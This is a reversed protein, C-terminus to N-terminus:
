VPKIGKSNCLDPSAGYLVLVNYIAENGVEVAKHLPTQYDCGPINPFAGAELLMEVGALFELNM